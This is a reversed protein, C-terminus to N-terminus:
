PVVLITGNRKTEEGFCNYYTLVVFYTGGVVTGNDGEGNWANSADTTSFMLRGWRNYIDLRFSEAQTMASIFYEDNIGDANPSFADPLEISTLNPQEIVMGTDSTTGCENTVQLWYSGAVTTIMLTDTVGTEWLFSDGVSDPVWLMATDGQCIYATDVNFVPLMLQQVFVSDKNSCGATDTVTLVYKGTTGTEITQTTAGTSWSYTQYSGAGLTITANECVVVSDPGLDIEPLPLVTVAITDSVCSMGGSDLVMVYTFVGVASADMEPNHINTQDLYTPPSWNYNYGLYVISPGLTVPQNLCTVEDTIDIDPAPFVGLYLSDYATSDTCYEYVSVLYYGSETATIETSDAWAGSGPGTWNITYIGSGGSAIADLLVQAGECFISDPGAIASIPMVEDIFLTLSTSVTNCTISSSVTISLTEGADGLGDDFASIALPITDVGPPFIITDNFATYDVGMTATGGVSIVVTDTVSLDGGRIFNLFATNCGEWLLTDVLGPTGNTFSTASSITVLNSSFSGAELFVASNYGQDCADALSLKITYTSCPVVPAVATLVVTFGDFVVGGDIVDNDVYYATNSLSICSPPFSASSGPSGNNVSNIAVIDSSGPVRAINTDVYTGGAPNPGSLFFGFVDNYDSCVFENYEESAFVYRFKLTDGTPVFDFQIVAADNIPNFCPATVYQELLPYGFNSPTGSSIFTAVSGDFDAPNTVAYTSLVIGSGLGLNNGASSFSQFQEPDGVSSINSVTLGGGVLVNQVLYAPTQQTM